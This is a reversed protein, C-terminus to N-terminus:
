KPNGEKKQLREIELRLAEKKDIAKAERLQPLAEAYKANRRAKLEDIEAQLAVRENPKDTERRQKDLDAIEKRLERNEDEIKKIMPLLSIREKYGDELENPALKGQEDYEKLKSEADKIENVLERFADSYRRDYADKHTVVSSVIPVDKTTIEDGNISKTMIRGIQEITTGLGGTFLKFTSEIAAPTVEFKGETIGDGGSTESITKAITTYLTDRKMDYVKESDPTDNPNYKNEPYLSNGFANKNTLVGVFSDLLDPSLMMLSADDDGAFAEFLKVGGIPNFHHAAGFLLDNFATEVDIGQKGETLEYRIMQGIKKGFYAAFGQLGYAEPLSIEGGGELMITTTGLKKYEDVLDFRNNGNDDEGWQMAAALGYAITALLWAALAAKRESTTVAEKYKVLSNTATTYFVAFHEIKRNLTGRRAYNVTLNTALKISDQVSKRALAADEKTPQEGNKLAESVRKKAEKIMEEHARFAALQTGNDVAAGFDELLKLVSLLSDRMYLSIKLAKGKGDLNKFKTLKIFDQNLKRQVGELTRMDRFGTHGGALRFRTQVRDWEKRYEASTAHIGESTVKDREYRWQARMAGYLYQSMLLAGRAGLSQHAFMMAEKTNRIPSTFLQFAVSWQTISRKWYSLLEDALTYPDENVRALADVLPQDNIQISFREGNYFFNVGQKGAPLEGKMMRWLQGGNETTADKHRAVLRATTLNVENKEARVIARELDFVIHEIIDKAETVRGKRKRIESGTLNFKTGTGNFQSIPTVGYDGEYTARDPTGNKMPVYNPYRQKLENKLEESLTGAQVRMDLSDDLMKRWVQAHEKITPHMEELTAIVDNARSTEMGSGSVPVEIRRDIKEREKLLLESYKKEIFADKTKGSGSLEAQKEQELRAEAEAYASEREATYKNFLYNNVEEAARAYLYLGIEEKSIDDKTLGEIAHKVDRNLDQVKVASRRRFTYITQELDIANEEGVKENVMQQVQRVRELDNVFSQRFSNLMGFVDAPKELKEQVEVADGVMERPAILNDAPQTTGAKSYAVNGALIGVNDSVDNQAVDRMNRKAIAVMDAGTLNATNLWGIRNFSAKIAAIFDSMWNALSKSVKAVTDILRSDSLTYREAGVQNIAEEVIYAAAEEANGQVDADIMRQEVAAYFAKIKDNGYKGQNLLQVARKELAAKKDSNAKAWWAHVGVEHVLVGNITDATLADAVLYTTDTAPDFFGQINGDQSFRTQLPNRIMNETYSYDKNKGSNLVFGFRKYFRQQGAKSGGFDGNATLVIKLNNRDAYAIIKNMVESGIGKGRMESPLKISNITIVSDSFTISGDLADSVSNIDDVIGDSANGYSRISRKAQELVHAPAEDISGLVKVKGNKLLRKGDADRSIIDTAAQKTLTEPRPAYDARGGDFRVIQKDSPVDQTASPATLKREQANMGLRKQTNRAEVEGALRQYLEFKYGAMGYEKTASAVDWLYDNYEDETIKGTVYDNLKREYSPLGMNMAEQEIENIAAQRQEHSLTSSPGGRAFNEEQQIAHQIEHMLSSKDFVIQGTRSSRDLENLQQEFEAEKEATLKGQEQLLEAERYISDEQAQIDKEYNSVDAIRIHNGTIYTKKGKSVFLNQLAPYAEFLADHKLVDSLKHTLGTDKVPLSEAGSDDIEFRWKGDVGEYWGTEQRVVEADEGAAIRTEANALNDLNATKAKRGAFSYKVGDDAGRPQAQDNLTVPQANDPAFPANIADGYGLADPTIEAAKAQEFEAMSARIDAADTNSYDLAKAVLGQWRKGLKQGKLSADLAAKVEEATYGDAVLAQTIPHNMSKTRTMQQGYENGDGGTYGTGAVPALSVGGGKTTNDFVEGLVVRYAEDLLREDAFNEPLKPAYSEALDPTIAMPLEPVEVGQMEEIGAEVLRPNGTAMIEQRIAEQAAQKAEVEKIANSLKDRLANNSVPTTSQLLRLKKHEEDLARLQAEVYDLEKQRELKADRKRYAAEIEVQKQTDIARDLVQQIPYPQPQSPTVEVVPVGQAALAKLEPDQPVVQAREIQEIMGLDQMMGQLQSDTQAMQNATQVGLMQDVGASAQGVAPLAAAAQAKALKEDRQVKLKTIEETLKTKAQTARSSAAGAAGMAGGAAMGGILGEGFAKGTGEMYTQSRDINDMIAVNAGVQESPSQLAEEGGERLMSVPIKAATMKGALLDQEVKGGGTVKTALASLAGGVVLAPLQVKRATVELAKDQSGTEMFAQQYVDSLQAMAADDKIIRDVAENAAAGGGMIASAGLAGTTATLPLSVVISGVGQAAVDSLKAPNNLIAGTTALADAIETPVGVSQFRGSLYKSDDEAKQNQVLLGASKVSDLAGSVDNRRKNAEVAGEFGLLTNAAGIVAENAGIMGQAVGLGMDKAAQGWTREPKTIAGAKYAEATVRNDFPAAEAAKNDPKVVKVRGKSLNYAAQMIQQATNGMDPLASAAELIQEPAVGFRQAAFEIAQEPTIGLSELTPEITSTTDNGFKIPM